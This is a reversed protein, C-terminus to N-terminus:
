VLFSVHLINLPQFIAVVCYISSKAVGDYKNRPSIPISDIGGTAPQIKVQAFFHKLGDRTVRGIDGSVPM